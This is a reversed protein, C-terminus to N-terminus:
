SSKDRAAAAERAPPAVRRQQQMEKHLTLADVPESYVYFSAAVYAAFLLLAPLQLPGLLGLVARALRFTAWAAAATVAFHIPPIVLMMARVDAPFDFDAEVDPLEPLGAWDASFVADWQKDWTAQVAAM